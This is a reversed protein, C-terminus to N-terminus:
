EDEGQHSRILGMDWAPPNYLYADLYRKLEPRLLKGTNEYVGLEYNCQYCIIGRVLKNPSKRSHDTSYDTLKFETHKITTTMEVGCIPCGGHRYNNYEHKLLKSCEDKTLSKVENEDKWKGSKPKLKLSM